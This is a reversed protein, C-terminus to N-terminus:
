TAPSLLGTAIDRVLPAAAARDMGPKLRPDYLIQLLLEDHNTLRGFEDDDNFISPRAQASDNALGLGQSIEEHICSTRLRDPLEARIVAAARQINGDQNPDSTFVVCYTDSSMEEVFRVQAPSIEPMLGTLQADSQRLEHDNLVFVRFNGGSEVNRIPHDTITALRAGFAAIAASDKTAQDPSVSPGIITEILIPRDWRHLASERSVRVVQGSRGSFEESFALANFNRAVMEDTFPADPGGGDFRLLGRAVLNREVREFRAEIEFSAATRPEFAPRAQAESPEVAVDNGAVSFGDCAALAIAMGLAAFRNRM